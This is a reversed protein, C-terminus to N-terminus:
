KSGKRLLNTVYSARSEGNIPLNQARCWTVLDNVIVPVKKVSLGRAELEGLAKLAGREWEEFTDDLTGRDDVVKTLQEWETRDFWGVGFVTRDGANEHHKNGV